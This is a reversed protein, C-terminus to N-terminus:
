TFYLADYENATKPKCYFFNSCSLLPYYKILFVM